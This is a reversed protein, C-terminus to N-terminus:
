GVEVSNLLAVSVTAMAMATAKALNQSASSRRSRIEHIVDWVIVVLWVGIRMRLYSMHLYTLFSVM